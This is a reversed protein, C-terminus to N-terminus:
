TASGVRVDMVGPRPGALPRVSTRTVPVPKKREEDNVHRKPPGNSPMTVDAAVHNLSVHMMQMVGGKVVAVPFPSM